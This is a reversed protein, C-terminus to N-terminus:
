KEVEIKGGLSRAQVSRDYMSEGFTPPVAYMGANTAKIRYIFERADTGAVGYLVVRDERVDAYEPHWTSKETGIPDSWGNPKVASKRESRDPQEESDTNETESDGDDDKVTESEKTDEETDSENSGESVSSKAPKPPAVVVEFGGPLLDVLAVNPLDERDMARLRLHVEIESGVTVKKIPKGDTDAYEREVELRKKIPETPLDKDFGSQMVLYFVDLNSTTSFRIKGAKDSFDVQPFLGDTLSLMKLEGGSLVESATFKGEPKSNVAKAYADLALITYSSSLTNYSGRELPKVLAQIENGDLRSLRDPFHKALIYLLQADRILGDYYNEYDSSQPEGLRSLGILRGAHNDQKLMRYTAALYIGALDKEWTKPFQAELRKQLTALYNSTNIGNRTMVYIAYARVREAALGEGESSLLEKMYSMANDLMDPPVPFSRDKAELLFHVTYVTAFDSVRPNAAWVGFAGDDNQRSRLTGIIKTLTKESIEPAFGFEPRNHLVIAPMAQSVLQETCGHPFKELYGLLGLALGLPLNSIGARLTRFEPYLKRTIPVDHDGKKFFGTQLTSMYPVPPRVSVETAYRSSKEGFSASFNLRGAGLKDKARLRFNATAERMEGIGMLARSQGIIELHDSCELVLAVQPNKGSGQINNAVSVSVNFEDGPAVFTPVNPSIVFDSRISAKKEFTGIANSSVAVAMVRMTGNFYAPVQYVLERETTDSDIIGSWYAVPEDHKRKFPNLHKSLADGGDGGPASLTKLLSFEPLILDLIQSTKVGLARKQFFYGLPDPTKYRAVQLIGEDVAFLVIRAPRDTKYRMKYPEGPKAVDESVVTVKATRRDLSVSFPVAGYSLPSMFIENSNIDRIFTVSIYGNGEIDDPLRIKQVTNNADTKFWRYLYVREREITILGAGAYPARINIEIEEGPAYDSKNISLQLEANKDLSRTLNGTGAITFDIRNLETGQNDRLILAYDGAQATPVAYRFGEVPISFSDEELTTEKKVSEYKYTGSTQKTLVSVYKREILALTLDSAAIKEVQPNIAIFDITRNSDKNIYRLNGDPKYGILCGMPSVLVAAQAAVGRGGEAEFGEASFRLQYTARAFRALGLDFKAEGNEDTKGDALEEHFSEKARLPDFFSYGKFRSFSLNAPNLTISARIKRDTAPTGFLNDLTVLGKLEVPSVWGEASESSLHAGIKLRDPLFERVRVTTSGLLGGREKDKVLYLSATYSGTPASDQTVYRIDEFGSASLKVKQKSVVLGRADTIVAELPIGNLNNGWDSDKVIIGIRFEDGPRYVGRDSFLFASLHEPNPSNAVGGIDFRSMNLNRDSRDVPIFSMDGAKQVLYMVPSKEREFDTLKPFHVHGDTGTTETLVALGNRGVVQVDAKVVPGGKQISQVFVDHSGDVNDKVLIGLDTVLILRSDSGRTTTRKVPDYGEVKFLFLGRRTQGGNDLYKTFDFAEYHPKGHGQDRLERVETFRESINDPKLNDYFTPKSFSGGSQTVVHQIQDPLIRGAEFRIAANDRSLVSIKKEGSMCLLAGESLIRLESPFVPVKGINDYSKGLIYGGFSRLGKKVVVYISRGVEAKYKFSFVTGYERENPIQELKVVQSAKLIEPGITAPDSWNYPGKREDEKTDPHFEPLVFANVNKQIEKEQVPVSTTLILVQEPDSRDNRVVCLETSNIGLYSYLGPISVAKELKTNSATGGRAARVGSDVLIRMSSDKEPIAVPESHIYANLKLKDYTIRFGYKRPEGPVGEKDGLMQMSVCKEFEPADVPHTFTVTTVVKKLDPDTPEQYYETKSITAIFPASNFRIDYQALRIHEAVLGKKGLTVSYERGVQWDEKPMFRLEHDSSWTWTGHIEPSIGIGENVTKGIMGLPAASKSFVVACPFIKQKDDELKTLGPATIKVGVEVPKPRHRYWNTGYALGALFMLLVISSLAALRRNGRARISLREAKSCLYGLWPPPDWSFSGFIPRIIFLALAAVAKFPMAILKLLAM